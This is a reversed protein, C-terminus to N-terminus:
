KYDPKLQENSIEIRHFKPIDRTYLELKKSVEVLPVYMTDNLLEPAITLSIMEGNLKAQKNNHKLELKNGNVKIILTESDIEVDGYQKYLSLGDIMDVEKKTYSKSAFRDTNVSDHRYIPYHISKLQIDIIIGDKSTPRTPLVNKTFDIFDFTKTGYEEYMKLQRIPMTRRYDFYWDQQPHNSLTDQGVVFADYFPYRDEMKQGSSLLGGREAQEFYEEPTLRFSDGHSIFEYLEKIYDIVVLNDIGKEEDIERALIKRDGYTERLQEVTMKKYDDTAIPKVPENTMARYVFVALQARTNSADARFTNDQYGTTIENHRLISIYRYAWHQTDIDNFDKDSFGQINFANVIVKAMQSRTLEAEPDFIGTSKGDFIGAKVVAQIYAYDSHETPVDYFERYGKADELDLNLAKALIRATQARTVTADPAFTNGERAEAIGKEKLYQIEKFAWYSESVDQFAVTEAHVVSDNPIVASFGSFAISMSLVIPAFKKM